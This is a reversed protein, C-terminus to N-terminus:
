RLKGDVIHNIITIAVFLYFWSFAIWISLFICVTLFIPYKLFAGLSNLLDFIMLAIPLGAVYCAIMKKNVRNMNLQGM